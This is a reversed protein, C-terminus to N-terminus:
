STKSPDSSPEASQSPPVDLSYLVLRDEMWPIRLQQANLHQILKLWWSRFWRPHLVVFLAKDSLYLDAPFHFWWRRLTRPHAWKFNEPLLATFQSLANVALGALWSYLTLANQRFGPRDPNPSRKSYGSPAADVFADHLLIRYTQEHHQRARFEQILTLAPTANDRFVYLAHWRDKGRRGEERAVITRVHRVPSHKDARLPTTTEAVHIRKPPAGKYRGPEEYSTFLEEPLAKWSKLYAPRRPTRVLLVQDPNQDAVALLERHNHAAGADLVVRLSNRRCRARLARLMKSAVRALRANGPTAVIDFLTRLRTDFCFFLKEVRMKKNRITHFGKPILFKRTFRAVAHEDISVMLQHAAQVVPQTLRVFKNVARTSVARVLSGLSRRSLVRRGGTLVALGEDTQTDFHFIRQIGLVAKFFLSLVLRGGHHAGVGGFCSDATRYLQVAEGM